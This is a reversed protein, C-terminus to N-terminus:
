PIIRQKAHRHIEFFIIPIYGPAEKGYYINKEASNDREVNQPIHPPFEHLTKRTSKMTSQTGIKAVSQLLLAASINHCAKM